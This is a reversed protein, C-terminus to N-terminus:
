NATRRRRAYHRSAKSRNGCGAMSCWRRTGNKSTDFFHLVCGPHACAKIRDPARELLRLYGDAALWAAYWAADGTEPVDVPGDPGLERRVRGHRLVDNLLERGGPEGALLAHVAARAQHLAELAPRTAAVTGALGTARLWIDLGDLSDLLDRPAGRENWRTNALDLPLPEGRLPRPDTM